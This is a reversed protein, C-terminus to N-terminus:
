WLKWAVEERDPDYGHYRSRFDRLAGQATALRLKLDAATLTADPSPATIFAASRQRSVIDKVELMVSRVMLITEPALPGGGKQASQATLEALLARVVPEVAEWRAACHESTYDEDLNM